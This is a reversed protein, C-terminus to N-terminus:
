KREIIKKCVKEVDEFKIKGDEQHNHLETLITLVVEKTTSEKLMDTLMIVTKTVAVKLQAKTYLKEEEYTGVNKKVM